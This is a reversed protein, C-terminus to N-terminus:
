LVSDTRSLNINEYNIADRFSFQAVNTGALPDKYDRM